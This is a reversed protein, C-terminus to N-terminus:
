KKRADGIARLVKDRQKIFELEGPFYKHVIREIAPYEVLGSYSLLNVLDEYDKKRAARVKLAVMYELSTVFVRMHSYEMFLEFDGQSSSFIKVGPNMWGDELNYKQSVRQIAHDMVTQNTCYADIDRTSERLGYVMSLVAGGHVYLDITSELHRLEENLQNLYFIIDDKTM